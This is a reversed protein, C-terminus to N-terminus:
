SQRKAGLHFTVLARGSVTIAKKLLRLTGLNSANGLSVQSLLFMGMQLRGQSEAKAAEMAQHPAAGAEDVPLHPLICLPPCLGLATDQQDGQGETTDRWGM